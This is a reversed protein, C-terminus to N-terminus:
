RERNKLLPAINRGEMFSPDEGVIGRLYELADRRTFRYFSGAGDLRNLDLERRQLRDRIEGLADELSYDDLEDLICPSGM